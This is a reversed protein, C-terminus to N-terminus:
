LGDREPVPGSRRHRRRGAPLHHWFWDGALHAVAELKGPEPFLHTAGPVIELRHACALLSGAQRNMGIVATDLGGVILLTPARVRSLAAQALDPRGGRSVVARVLDPREAAAILGAAAGTSAGFLGTKLSRAEPRSGLWDLGGVLRRALLAIDFRLALSREDEDSEQPTLLDFLLTAFGSAALSDAVFRNRPSLSSSGSGHAFVVIGAPDGPITLTGELTADSARVEVELTRPERAV